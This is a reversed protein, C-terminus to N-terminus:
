REALSCRGRPSREVGGAPVDIDFAIVYRAADEPRFDRIVM